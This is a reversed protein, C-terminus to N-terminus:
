ESATEAERGQDGVWSEGVSQWFEGPQLKGEWRPWDEHSDLRAASVCGGTQSMVQVEEARFHDLLYPSHSTCVIQTDPRRALLRRLATVLKAQADPHLGQDIDDLLLLRPCDPQHLIALLGLTTLTGESLLDGPVSGFGDIVVEFRHAAIHRRLHRPVLEEGIRIMETERIEMEAPFSRIRGTIGLVSRLESELSELQERYAGAFYALVTALGAGDHKVRPQSSAQSIEGLKEADFKLFVASGFQRFFSHGFFAWADEAAGPLKLVRPSNNGVKFTIIFRPTDNGASGQEITALLRLIHGERTVCELEFRDEGSTVLRGPAWRGWFIRGPRHTSSEKENPKPVALQTLLHLGHLVSTKGIGSPGVVVNLQQLGSLKVERLSKFGHFRVTDLM